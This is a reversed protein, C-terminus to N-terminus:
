LRRCHLSAGMRDPRHLRRWAAVIARWAHRSCRSRKVPGLASFAEYM